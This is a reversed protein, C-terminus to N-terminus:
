RKIYYWIKYSILVFPTSILLVFFIICTIWDRLIGWNLNGWFDVGLVVEFSSASIICSWMRSWDYHWLLEVSEWQVSVSCFQYVISISLDESLKDNDWYEWPSRFIDDGESLLFCVLSCLSLMELLDSPHNKTM